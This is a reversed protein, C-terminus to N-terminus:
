YRESFMREFIDVFTRGTAKILGDNLTIQVKIVYEFCGRLTMLLCEELIAKILGDNLTIQVKINACFCYKFMM